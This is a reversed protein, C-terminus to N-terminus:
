SSIYDICDITFTKIKFRKLKIISIDGMDVKSNTSNRVNSRYVELIYYSTCQM